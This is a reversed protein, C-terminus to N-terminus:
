QKRCVPRIAMGIWRNPTGDSYFADRIRIDRSSGTKDNFYLWYSNNSNNVSVTSWYAGISTSMNLSSEYLGTMPLFISNGNTGTVKYGYITVSGDKQSDLEWTCRSILENIELYTPMRWTGGWIYRAADESENTALSSSGSHTYNAQSFSDKPLTEGWAFYYFRQYPYDQGLNRDAWCIDSFGLDVANGPTGFVTVPCRAEKNGDKTHVYIYTNGAKLGTVLGNSNVSAVTPDNSSWEVNKNAADSPTVTAVLQFTTSVARRIYAQSANLSVGSPHIKSVTIKCSASKNGMNTTATINATGEAVGTVLGNQDVTAVNKDSSKWSYSKDTADNPLVVASLQVSMQKGVTLTYSSPSVQISSPSVTSTTFEKKSGREEKGSIVAYAMYAYRTGHELDRVTAWFDEGVLGSLIRESSKENFKSYEDIIFGVEDVSQEVVKLSGTLKASTPTVETADGTHLNVYKESNSIKEKGCGALALAFVAATFIPILFRRM